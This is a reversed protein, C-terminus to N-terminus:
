SIVVVSLAITAASFVAGGAIFPLGLSLAAVPTLFGVYPAVAFIGSALLTRIALAGSVLYPENTKNFINKM